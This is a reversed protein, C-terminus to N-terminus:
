PTKQRAAAWSSPMLGSSRVLWLRMVCCGDTREGCFGTNLTYLFGSPQNATLAAIHETALHQLNAERRYGADATLVTDARLRRKIKTGESTAMKGRANDTRDSKRIAVRRSYQDMVVALYRWQGPVANV